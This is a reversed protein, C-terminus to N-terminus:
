RSCRQSVAAIRDFAARRNAFADPFRQMLLEVIDALPRKGDMLRMAELEIRAADSLTPVFDAALKHLTDASLPAGLFSSQCFGRAGAADASEIQTDWRWIYDDGVLDAKMSVEVRAGASVAVAEPFPFFAQGYILEAAGPANSFRTTATLEADFWLAVGHAVGSRETSFELTGEVDPEVISGYDFTVFPQAASLLEAPDISAKRWQNVVIERAARMDVGDNNTEWPAVIKAYTDPTEVIAAHIHDRGPIMTGDRALLRQRADAITPIHRRFLPLVGRLDSVMVDVPAPLTVNISLDQIFEIREAFGNDHAIKRALGISDSPEVAYVKEAGLTCAILAYIGTGAGLDLVTSGPRVLGRLAERYADIRGSDAIMAGYSSIDYTDADSM